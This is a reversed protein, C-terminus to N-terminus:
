NIVKSGLLALISGKEEYFDFGNLVETDKFSKRLDMMKIATETM